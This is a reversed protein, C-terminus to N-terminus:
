IAWMFIQFWRACVFHTRADYPDSGEKHQEFERFLLMSLTKGTTELMGTLTKTEGLDICNIVLKRLGTGHAAIVNMADVPCSGSCSVDLEELRSQERLLSSVPFHPDGDDLMVVKLVKFRTNDM